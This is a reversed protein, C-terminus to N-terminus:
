FVRGPLYLAREQTARSVVVVGLADVLIPAGTVDAVFWIYKIIAEPTFGAVDLM